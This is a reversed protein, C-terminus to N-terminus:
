KTFLKSLVKEVRKYLFFTLASVVIGKLLNFPVVALLVLTTVDTINGNVAGGMSVIADLPIGYLTSFQPLLYVANFFSGFLTMTLTGVSMAVIASKLSKGKHYLISAPLVFTCGIVFNAFDGIFATSTGKIVLKIIVKLFETIVGAVPGFYFATILVPLESIDLQYFSPAFFLPIEFLMLVAGLAASMAIFSVRKAPSHGHLSRPLLRQCVWAIAILGFAIALSVLAFQLTEHM